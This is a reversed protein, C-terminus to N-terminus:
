QALAYKKILREGPTYSEILLGDNVMLALTERILDSKNGTFDKFPQTCSKNQIINRETRPEQRSEFLSLIAKYEARVGIIGKDICLKLNAEIMAAAISIASKVHKDAITDQIIDSAQLNAAIKMIQMDIKAASGRIENNSYRGGDALHCEISIRYDNIMKWGNDSISFSPLHDYEKIPSLARIALAKLLANYRKVLDNNICRNKNFDRSGLNHKEAILLFREALGTGNSQKLLNEIGGQQSFMVANGVAVGHYSDRTVRESSIFGADFGNLLLDNNNAKDGSYCAGLLTNFLGQESSVASFYGGSKLLTQELAEPTSNTTFLVSPYNSEKAADFFPKQFIKLARSKATGPPQELIVYLGCPLDGGFQYDIKFARSTFSSFVGLGAVFVTHVPLDTAEAIEVSLKKLLHNDDVHKLFNVECYHNDNDLTDNHTTIIKDDVYVGNNSVLKLGSIMADYKSATENYNKQRMILERALM